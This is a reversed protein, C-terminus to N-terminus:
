EGWGMEEALARAEKRAESAEAEARRMLWRAMKPHDTQAREALSRLNHADNLRGLTRGLRKLKKEGAGSARGAAQALWEQQYGLYKVWRRWRHWAAADGGHMAQHALDMAKSTCVRLGHRPVKDLTGWGLPWDEAVAELVAIMRRKAGPPPADRRAAVEAGAFLRMGERLEKPAKRAAGAVLGALVEADRASALQKAAGRLRENWVKREAGNVLGRGVHAVARLRKCLVRSDHVLAPDWGRTARLRQVMSSAEGAAYRALEGMEALKGTKKAM